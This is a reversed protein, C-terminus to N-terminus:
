SFKFVDTKKKISFPQIPQFHRGFGNPLSSSGDLPLILCTEIAGAISAFRRVLINRHAHFLVLGIVSGLVNRLIIRPSFPRKAMNVNLIWHWLTPASRGYVCIRYSIRTRNNKAIETEYQGNKVKTNASRPIFIKNSLKWTVIASCRETNSRKWDWVPPKTYQLFLLSFPLLWKM